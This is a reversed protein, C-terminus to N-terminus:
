HSWRKMSLMVTCDRSSMSYIIGSCWGSACFLQATNESRSNLSTAPSGRLMCCADSSLLPFSSEGQRSWGHIIVDYSRRPVLWKILKIKGSLPPKWLTKDIATTILRIESTRTKDKSPTMCVKSTLRICKPFSLNEHCKIHTLVKVFWPKM